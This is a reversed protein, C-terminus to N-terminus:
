TNHRTKLTKQQLTVNENNQGTYANVEAHKRTSFAYFAYVHMNCCMKSCYSGNKLSKEQTERDTRAHTQPLKQRRKITSYIYM